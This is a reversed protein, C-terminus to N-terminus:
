IIDEFVSAYVKSAVSAIEEKRGEKLRKAAKHAEGVLKDKEEEMKETAAAITSERNKSAKAHAKEIISAAQLNANELISEKERHADELVSDGPEWVHKMTETVGLNKAAAPNKSAIAHPSSSGSVDASGTSGGISGIGSSGDLLATNSAADEEKSSRKSLPLKQNKSAM